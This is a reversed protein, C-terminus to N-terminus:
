PVKLAEKVLETCASLKTKVQATNEEMKTTQSVLKSTGEKVAQSNRTVLQSMENVVEHLRNADKQAQDTSRKISSILGLDAIMADTTKCVASTVEQHIITAIDNEIVRFKTDVIDTVATVVKALLQGRDLM